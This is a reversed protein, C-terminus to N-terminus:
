KLMPGGEGQIVVQVKEDSVEIPLVGNFEIEM